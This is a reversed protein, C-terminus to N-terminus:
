QAQNAVYPKGNIEVITRGNQQYVRGITAGPNAAAAQQSVYDQVDQSLEEPPLFNNQFIELGDVESTPVTPTVTPAVDGTPRSPTPSSQLVNAAIEGANLDSAGRGGLILDILARSLDMQLKDQVSAKDTQETVPGPQGLISTGKSTSENLITRALEAISGTAAAAQISPHQGQLFNEGSASDLTFQGDKVKGGANFLSALAPLIRALELNGRHAELQSSATSGPVLAGGQILNSPANIGLANLLQQQDALNNINAVNERGAIEATTRAMAGEDAVRQTSRAENGRLGIHRDEIQGLLSTNQRQNVGQTNIQNIQDEAAKRAMLNDIMGQRAQGLQQGASAAENAINQDLIRSQRSPDYLQAM